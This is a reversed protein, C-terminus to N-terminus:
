DSLTGSMHIDRELNVQYMKNTDTPMWHGSVFTVAAPLCTDGACLGMDYGGFTLINSDKLHDFAFGVITGVVGGIVTTVPTSAIGTLLGVIIGAVTGVVTGLVTKTLTNIDDYYEVSAGVVNHQGYDSGYAPCGQNRDGKYVKARQVTEAIGSGAEDILDDYATEDQWDQSSVMQQAAEVSGAELEYTEISHTSATTASVEINKKETKLALEHVDGTETNKARAFSYVSEKTVVTERAELEVPAPDVDEHGRGRGRRAAGVAPIASAGITTGAISLFQRRNTNDRM